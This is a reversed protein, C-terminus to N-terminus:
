NEVTSTRAAVTFDSLQTGALHKSSHLAGLVLSLTHKARVFDSHLMSFCSLTSANLTMADLNGFRSSVTMQLGFNGIVFRVRSGEVLHLEPCSSVGPDAVCTKGAKM